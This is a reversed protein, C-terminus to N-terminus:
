VQKTEWSGVALFLVIRVSGHWKESFSLDVLSVFGLSIMDSARLLPLRQHCRENSGEWADCRIPSESEAIASLEYSWLSSLSSSINPCERLQVMCRRCDLFISNDTGRFRSSFLELGLCCQSNLRILILKSEKPLMEPSNPSLARLGRSTRPHGSGRFGM